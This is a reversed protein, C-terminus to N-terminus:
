SAEVSTPSRAVVAIEFEDDIYVGMSYSSGPLNDILLVHQGYDFTDKECGNIGFSEFVIVPFVFLRKLYFFTKIIM